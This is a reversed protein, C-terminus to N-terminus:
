ARQELYNQALEVVCGSDVIDRLTNVDTKYLRSKMQQYRDIRIAPFYVRVQECIHRVLHERDTAAPKDLTITSM